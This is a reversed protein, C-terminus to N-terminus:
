KFRTSAFAASWAPKWLEGGLAAPTGVPPRPVGSPPIELPLAFTADAPLNGDQLYDHHGYAWESPIQWQAQLRPAPPFPQAPGQHGLAARYYPHGRDIIGMLPNGLPFAFALVEDRTSALLSLQEIKNAASAYEDVLCTNDIAGAMLLVRRVRAGAALGSITQLVVRAGLSHSAFSLSVAGAFNNNLFDSLFNGSQIAERGEVIYDVFLKLSADGPWLIGIKVASGVQLNGLWAGLEKIGTPQDVEFGHTVFFVDRGEIEAKLQSLLDETSGPRDADLVTVSKAPGGIQQVRTSLFWRAM